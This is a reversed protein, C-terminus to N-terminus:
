HTAACLANLGAVGAGVVVLEFTEDASGGDLAANNSSRDCASVPHSSDPEHLFCASANTVM